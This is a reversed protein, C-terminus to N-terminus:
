RILFSELFCDEKRPTMVSTMVIWSVIGIDLSILLSRYQPATVNHSPRINVLLIYRGTSLCAFSPCLSINDDQRFLGFGHVIRKALDIMSAGSFLRALSMYPFLSSTSRRSWCCIASCFEILDFHASCRASLSPNSTRLWPEIDTGGLSVAPCSSPCVSLAICSLGM